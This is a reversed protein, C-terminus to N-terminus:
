TEGYFAAGFGKRKPKQTALPNGTVPTSTLPRVRTSSGPPAAERQGVRQNALGSVPKQVPLFSGASSSVGSASNGAGAVRALGGQSPMFPRDNGPIPAGGKPKPALGSGRTGVNPNRGGGNPFRDSGPSSVKPIFKNAM